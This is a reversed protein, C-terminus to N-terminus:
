FKTYVTQLTTKPTPENVEILLYYKNYKSEIRLVIDPRRTKVELDYFNFIDKYKSYEKLIDPM